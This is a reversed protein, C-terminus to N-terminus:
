CPLGMQASCASAVSTYIYIYIYVFFMLLILLFCVKFLPLLPVYHLLCIKPIQRSSYTTKSFTDCTIHAWTFSVFNHMIQMDNRQIHFDCFYLRWVWRVNGGPRDGECNQNSQRVMEMRLADTDTEFFLDETTVEPLVKKM